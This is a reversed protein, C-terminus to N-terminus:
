ISRTLNQIQQDRIPQRHILPPAPRPKWEFGPEHSGRRARLRDSAATLRSVTPTHTFVFRQRENVLVAKLKLSKNKDNLQVVSPRTAEKNSLM